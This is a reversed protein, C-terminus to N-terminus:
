CRTTKATGSSCSPWRSISIAIIGDVLMRRMYPMSVETTAIPRGDWPVFAGTHLSVRSATATEILGDSSVHGFANSHM